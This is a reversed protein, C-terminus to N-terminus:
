YDDGNKAKMVTNVGNFTDRAHRSQRKTYEEPSAAVIEQLKGSAIEALQRDSFVYGGPSVGEAAQTPRGTARGNTGSSYTTAM